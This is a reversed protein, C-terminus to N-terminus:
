NATHSNCRLSVRLIAMSSAHRETYSSTHKLERRMSISISRLIVERWVHIPMVRRMDGYGKVIASQASQHRPTSLPAPTLSAVHIPRVPPHSGSAPRLSHTGTVRPSPSFRHTQWEVKCGSLPCIGAVAQHVAYKSPNSTRLVPPCESVSSAAPQLLTLRNLFISTAHTETEQRNFPTCTMAAKSCLEAM